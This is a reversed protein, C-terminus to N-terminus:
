LFAVDQLVAPRSALPGGGRGAARAGSAPPVPAGPRQRREGCRLRQIASSVPERNSAEGGSGGCTSRSAGSSANGIDGGARM